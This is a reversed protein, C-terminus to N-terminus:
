PSLSLAMRSQWCACRSTSEALVCNRLASLLHFRHWSADCEVASLLYRGSNSVGLQEGAGAELGM